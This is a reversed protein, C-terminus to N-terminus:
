ERLDRGTLRLFVDELNAPRRMFSVDPMNELAPILERPERTYCYLTEGVYEVRNGNLRGLRERLAPPPTHIEIVEPEVHERILERPSGTAIIRGHDVIMLADCLREAEEMYHTTLILTKGASKLGRLRTWILHRVQPDFGTTPEDLVLMEPDNVLARAVSLRRKMGGSLTNIRTGARQSLEVFELLEEIRGQVARRSLGFYNAYVLLNEYVTFDPDLNDTQPVVGLRARVARTEEPMPLGLVRLSGATPHTQGLVMRLLTTKGAGNPGLIGFCGGRPISFDVGAVATFANFRKTLGSAEVVLQPTDVSPPM